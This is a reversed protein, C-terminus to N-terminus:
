PALLYRGMQTAVTAPARVQPPLFPTAMEALGLLKPAYQKVWGWIKKLHDVNCFDCVQQSFVYKADKYSDPHTTPIENNKWQSETEGEVHWVMTYEGAPAANDVAGGINYAVFLYDTALSMNIPSISEPDGDDFMELMVEEQPNNVPKLPIYRGEKYAATFPKQSKAAISYPDISLNGTPPLSLLSTWDEGGGAQYSLCKGQSVFASSRDSLMLSAANVRMNDVDAASQLLGPVPKHCFAEKSNDIMTITINSRSQNLVLSVYGLRDVAALTVTFAGAVDTTFNYSDDQSVGNSVWNVTLTYATSAVLGTMSIQSPNSSESQFWVRSRGDRYVVPVMINDHRDWGSTLEAIAPNIPANAVANITGGSAQQGRLAYTSLQGSAKYEYHISALRPDRRVVAFGANLQMRALPPPQQITIKRRLRNVFTPAGGPLRFPASHDPDILAALIDGARSVPGRNPIPNEASQTPNVPFQSYARAVAYRAKAEKLQRKARKGKPNHKPRSAKDRRSQEARRAAEEPSIPKQMGQYEGDHNRLIEKTASIVEDPVGCRSLHSFIGPIGAFGEKGFHIAIIDREPLRARLIEGVLPTREMNHLHKDILSELEDFLWAWPWIVLRLGILHCLAAEDLTFSSNTTVWYMSSRLKEYNGAAVVVDGFPPVFRERLVHSLYTVEGTPAYDLQEFEVNLNLSKTFDLFGRPTFRDDLYQIKGDDGNVRLVMSRLIDGPGMAPDVRHMYLAHLGIGYLSTDHATNFGGSAHHDGVHISGCAIMYGCFAQDYYWEVAARYSPHLFSARADRIARAFPQLFDKDCRGIDYGCAQTFAMMHTVYDPGPVVIGITSPHHGISSVLAANQAGFLISGVLYHIKSASCVARTKKEKVRTATRLEDKLFVIFPEWPDCGMLVQNVKAEIEPGKAALADGFTPFNLYGYGPSKSKDANNIADDYTWNRLGSFFPSLLHIYFDTLFDVDAQPTAVRTADCGSLCRWLAEESRDAPIWSTALDGKWPAPVIHSKGIPRYQDFGVCKTPLFM